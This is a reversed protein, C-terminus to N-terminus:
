SRSAPASRRLRRTARAASARQRERARRPASRLPLRSRLRHRRLAPDPRAALDGRLLLRLQGRGAQPQLPRHPDRLRALVGFIILRWPTDRRAPAAHGRRSPPPSRGAAPPTSGTWRPSGVGRPRGRRARAVTARTSAPASPHALRSTAARFTPCPVNGPLACLGERRFYCDDCTLDTRKKAAM